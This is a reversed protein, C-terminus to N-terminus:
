NLGMNEDREFIKVSSRRYSSFNEKEYNQM